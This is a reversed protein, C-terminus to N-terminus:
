SMLSLSPDLEVLSKLLKPAGARDGNSLFANAESRIARWRRLTGANQM